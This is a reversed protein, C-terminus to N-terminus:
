KITWVMTVTEDAEIDDPEINMDYSEQPSRFCMEKKVIDLPQSEFEVRGWSYDIIQLEQLSVGAAHSLIEAKRSGDKVALELLQNKIGEQDKVFYSISFEPNVKSNAVTYLVKGLLDNDSPFELKLEHKYKYGEFRSKYEGYSDKYNYYKTDVDFSVTKILEKAFGLKELENKLYETNESSEKFTEEYNKLVKELKMTIRTMDPKVSLIGKGTVRITREM